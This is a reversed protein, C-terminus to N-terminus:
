WDFADDDGAGHVNGKRRYSRACDRVDTIGAGGADRIARISGGMDPNISGSVPASGLSSCPSQQKPKGGTAVTSKRHEPMSASSRHSEGELTPRCAGHRLRDLTAAGLLRNPLADSWESFDLCSTFTAGPGCRGAVLDAPTGVRASQLFWDAFMSRLVGRSATVTECAVFAARPLAGDDALM